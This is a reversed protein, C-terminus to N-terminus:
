SNMTIDTRLLMVGRMDGGRVGPWSGVATSGAATAGLSGARRV